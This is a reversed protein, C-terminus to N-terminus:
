CRDGTACRAAVTVASCELPDCVLSDISPRGNSTISLRGAGALLETCDLICACLSKASHLNQVEFFVTVNTLSETVKQIVHGGLRSKISLYRVPAAWVNKYQPPCLSVRVCAGTSVVSPVRERERKGRVCWGYLLHLTPRTQASLRSRSSLCVSLFTPSALPFARLLHQHALRAHALPTNSAGPTSRLM